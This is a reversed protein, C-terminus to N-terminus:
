KKVLLESITDNIVDFDFGRRALFDFLRKRAKERPLKRLSSLKKEALAKVISGEDEKKESLAKEIISLEIGKERLEKKILMDGKPSLRMRSEVWLRAFKLDDIINKEKLLSIVDEIIARRFRKKYLRDRLEKESRPKIAFLRYAYATAKAHKDKKMKLSLTDEKLEM